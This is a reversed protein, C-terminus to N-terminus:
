RRGKIAENSAQKAHKEIISIDFPSDRNGMYKRIALYGKYLHVKWALQPPCAQELTSVADKMVHWTDPLKWACEAALVADKTQGAHTSVAEWSNLEKCCKIWSERWLDYEANMRVHAAQNSVKEREAVMMKELMGQAEEYKAQEMTSLVKATNPDTARQEWVCTHWTGEGIQNYLTSLVDAATQGPPQDIDFEKKNQTERFASEELQTIALPHLAYTAALYRWHHPRIDIPPNLLVLSEVLTAVDAAHVAPHLSLAFQRLYKAVFPVHKGPVIRWVVPFLMKWTRRAVEASVFCLETIADLLNDSTFSEGLRSIDSYYRSFISSLQHPLLEENKEAMKCEEKLLKNSEYQHLLSTFNVPNRNLQNKDSKLLALLLAIAIPMWNSNLSEWSQVAFIFLLREHITRPVWDDYLSFFKNRKMPHTLGWLYAPELKTILTEQGNGSGQLADSARSREAVYVNYVVDLYKCQLLELKEKRFAGDRQKESSLDVFRKTLNQYLKITLISREKNSLVSGELWSSVGDIISELLSYNESKDILQVVSTMIFQKRSEPSLVLVNPRIIEFVTLILNSIKDSQNQTNQPDHRGNASQGYSGVHEKTLRHFSRILASSIIEVIKPMHKACEILQITKEMESLPESGNESQTLGDNVQGYLAECLPSLQEHNPYRTFVEKLLACLAASVRGDNKTVLSVLANQLKIIDNIPNPM